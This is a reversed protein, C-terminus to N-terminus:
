LSPCGGPPYNCSSESSGGRIDVDHFRFDTCSGNGCLVYYDMAVPVVWGSIGSFKIDAVRVGNSPVGTPGGNLYDQQIDIGYSKINSLTINSFTVNEVSGTANFDTKIRLGNTSNTVISNEFRPINALSIKIFTQLHECSTQFIIGQDQGV